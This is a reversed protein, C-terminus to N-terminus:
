SRARGALCQGVLRRHAQVPSSPLSLYGLELELLPPTFDVDQARAPTANTTTFDARGSKLADVVEAPRQFVVMEAPVGLRRALERGLEVTLGRMEESGSARVMSTPSGPYVAVRLTGSPALVPRPEPAVEAAWGALAVALGPLGCLLLLWRRTHKM